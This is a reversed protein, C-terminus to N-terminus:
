SLAPRQADLVSRIAESLEQMGVPKMVFGQIGSARATSDDVKESFGTCLIIPLSPRIALIERSLEYGTMHPMTQDTIVLDFNGPNKRFEALAKLSDQEATVLYGMSALQAQLSKVIPEEDDVLLVRETGRALAKRITNDPEGSEEVRPFLVSFTAGKGPATEVTIEGGYSRVIGHVVALGMGTGKDIAKTTFFPDFIRNIIDPSIGRGTDSVELRVYGGPKLDHYREVDGATIDVPALSVRLVGARDQMAHVSNTCLNMVVQHLETMDGIIVYPLQPIDAQIDITSPVTARILKLVEQLVIHPLIPKRQPEGKRSFALIQKVLNKARDSAKLVQELNKRIQMNGGALDCTLETYGIIAALINNFDHAIGGALTGISELKQSQRIQQEMRRRESVDRLITMSAIYKKEANPIMTTTCELHVLERDPTQLDIDYTASGKEYFEKTVGPGRDKMGPDQLFLTEVPLGVLEDKGRGFSIEVPKNLSIIHGQENTIIIGDTSNNIVTELFDRSEKLEGQSAKLREFQAELQENATRLNHYATQLEVTKDQIEKELNDRHQKLENEISSKEALEKKLRRSLDSLRGLMFGYLIIAVTGPLLAGQKIVRTYWDGGIMQYLLINLPLSIIGAILGAMGGYLWAITVVPIITLIARGANQFYVFAMFIWLYVLISLLVLLLKTADQKKPMSAIREHFYIRKQTKDPKM